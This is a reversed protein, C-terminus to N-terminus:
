LLTGCVAAGSAAEEEYHSLEIECGFKASFIDRLLRNKRVGNGSGLLRKVSIGTGKHIIDYWDFLEQSIGTQFGRILGGPTFNNESINTVAGRVLPDIRTGGFRTDVVLCDEDNEESLALKEMVAYQQEDGAGLAAAYSRFFKELLAYARGSCLTSGALLYKGKLYPRAEVGPAEFVKDSLVSLQGGTGVNLLWAGEELGAAGLFSAQNDGLATIVPIGNYEGLVQPDAAIDPLLGPDMGLERILDICFANNELDYLGFSAANSAHVLPTKRGTLRMGVYDAITCVVRSRPDIQDTITHYLNTILGYGTAVPGDYKERILAVTSKGDRVPLDGRGDEWTYLPSVCDGNEDLYIIGHMQGTLGIYATQPYEALLGDLLGIAKDALRQADQIREWGNGTQIFCGNPITKSRLIERDATDMVVLSISTTGIDLGVTIM